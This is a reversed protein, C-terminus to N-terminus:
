RASGSRSGVLAALDWADDHDGNWRSLHERVGPLVVRKEGHIARIAAHENAARHRTDRRIDSINLCGLDGLRLQLIAPRREEGGGTAIPGCVNM